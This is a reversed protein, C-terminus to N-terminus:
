RSGADREGRIWERLPRPEADEFADRNVGDLRRYLADVEDVPQRKPGVIRSCFFTRCGFPRSAYVSCRLGTEDLFVCGGDVREAPLQPVAARLLKWESPYLWPERQTKQLQCCDGSAPCSFPRYAEDAKRLVTQTELRARRETPSEAM